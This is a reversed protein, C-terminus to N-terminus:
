PLLPQLGDNPLKTAFYVLRRQSSDVTIRSRQGLAACAVHDSAALARVRDTGPDQYYPRVLYSTEFYIM